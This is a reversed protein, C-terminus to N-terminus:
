RWGSQGPAAMSGAPPPGDPNVMREDICCDDGPADLLSEVHDVVTPLTARLGASMPGPAFERGEVGVLRLSEPMRGLRRALEIGTAVGVGHTSWPTESGIRAPDVLDVTGVPRGTRSADVLIVDDHDRWLVALDALDGERVITAVPTGRRLLEDVVAPGVGDDACDRNGVGIVLTM